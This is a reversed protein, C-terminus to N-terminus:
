TPQMVLCSLQSVNNSAQLSVLLSRREKISAITLLLIKIFNQGPLHKLLQAALDIQEVVHHSTTSNYQLM